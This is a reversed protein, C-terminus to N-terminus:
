LSKVLWVMNDQPLFHFVPEGGPKSDRVKISVHNTDWDFTDVHFAAVVDVKNGNEGKLMVKFAKVKIVEHCYFVNYPYPVTHCVVLSPLTMQVYIEKVICDQVLPSHIRKHQM